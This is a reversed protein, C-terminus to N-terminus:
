DPKLDGSRLRRVGSWKARFLEDMATLVEPRLRKVLDEISPLEDRAESAGNGTEATAPPNRVKDRVPEAPGPAAADAAPWTEGAAEGEGGEVKSRRGEIKGSLRAELV